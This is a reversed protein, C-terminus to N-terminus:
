KAGQQQAFLEPLEANVAIIQEKLNMPVVGTLRCSEEWSTGSSAYVSPEDSAWKAKLITASPNVITRVTEALQRMEILEGGTEFLGSIEARMRAMSVRIVDSVSVYRRFVPSKAQVDILGNKAQLIFSSFAYNKPSMVDPGSVSYVRAVNVCREPTTLSLLESEEIQKLSGYSGGVDIVAAGSSFTLVKRVSPLTAVDILNQIIRLNLRRFEESGLQAEKELTLFACNYVSTPRFQQISSLSMAGILWERGCFSMRRERSALPLVMEADKLQRLLARGFWGTAGIVLIREDAFEGSQEDSM